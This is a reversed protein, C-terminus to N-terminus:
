LTTGIGKSMLDNKLSFKGYIMTNLFNVELAMEKKIV